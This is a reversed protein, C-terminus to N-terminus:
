KTKSEVGCVSGVGALLTDNRVNDDEKKEASQQRNDGRDLQQWHLHWAELYAEM